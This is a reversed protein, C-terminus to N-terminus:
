ATASRSCRSRRARRRASCRKRTCSASPSTSSSASSGSCGATSTSAPRPAASSGAGSATAHRMRHVSEFLPARGALHERCRTRCARCTTRICWAAGTSPAPRPRRRRLGADGELAALFVADNARHRFGVPRRERPERSRRTRRQPGPRSRASATRPRHRPQHRDAEAAAAPQRGVGGARWAARLDSCGRPGDRSRSPSWCRPASRCSPSGLRRPRSSAARPHTDRYETLRLHDFRSALYPLQALETGRLAEVRCQSFAAKAVTISEISNGTPDLMAAFAADTGTRERLTDLSHRVAADANERTM